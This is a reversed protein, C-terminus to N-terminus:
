VNFRFHIIDGDKVQYEKGEMRFKGAEKVKAESGFQFLDNCHYIEAKIFGREFDTHIVAAAQPALAGKPFTWARVEKVGATFYTQVELLQYGSKILKSLGSESIGIDKLFAAKEEASELAAIESEIKGCITIVEAGEKKALERVKKVHENETLIAEEDVNCVYLLKKMTILHLDSISDKEDADLELSRAPLGDELTKILKELIPKAIKARTSIVKDQSKMLKDLNGIRKTVTELDALALEINITEIDSIPDVKGAVHIIDDNEFCRVVHAIAGVQRIHGLFQNGLGEGKSAGKVLGAIDVFEVIAPVVREPKVISSIKDLRDDPVHVVGINPEITCFPYNAAEAPASTLASFITSKGVNPLGVIGCNIGM